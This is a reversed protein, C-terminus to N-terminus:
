KPFFITYSNVLPKMDDDWIMAKITYTKGSEFKNNFEFVNREMSYDFQADILKSKDDYITVITHPGNTMIGKNEIDVTVNIGGNDPSSAGVSNINFENPKDLFDVVVTKGEPITTTQAETKKNDVYACKGDDPIIEIIGAVTTAKVTGGTKVDVVYNEFSKMANVGSVDGIQNKFESICNDLYIITNKEDTHAASARSGAFLGVNTKNQSSLGNQTNVKADPSIILNTTGTVHNDSSWGFGYDNYCGTYVRRLVEGGCLKVFTNGNMSNYECGGFISEAIGGTMTIYVDCAELNLSEKKATGGYVNMVKGGEINIYAKKEKGKSKEGSGSIYKAVANDKLTVHTEGIVSANSGGGWIYCPSITASNSDSIGDGANVNGGVTVYTDGIVDASLGGGWIGSYKGGLLTIHTDGTMAGHYKGGFVGIRNIMTVDEDITLNFGNAFLSTTGSQVTSNIVLNSFTTDGAIGVINTTMNLKETGTYGEITLSGNYTSPCHVYDTDSMIIIKEYELALARKYAAELTAMPTDATAGDNANNGTSSVFVSGDCMGDSSLVKLNANSYYDYTKGDGLPLEVTFYGDKDIHQQQVFAVDEGEFTDKDAGDQLAIILVDCDTKDLYGGIRINESAMASGSMLMAMAMTLSAAKKMSNM